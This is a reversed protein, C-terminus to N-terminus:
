INKLCTNSINKLKESRLLKIDFYKKEQDIFLINNNYQNFNERIAEFKLESVILPLNSIYIPFKVFNDDFWVEANNMWQYGKEFLETQILIFDEETHILKIFYPKTKIIKM